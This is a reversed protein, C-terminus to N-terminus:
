SNELVWESYTWANRSRIPIQFHQYKSSLSFGSYGSFFRESCLLSGAVFEVWMHRRTWSNFGPWMPPLHAGEGSRLGQEGLQPGFHHSFTPLCIMSIILKNKKCLCDLLTSSTSFAVGSTALILCSSVFNFNLNQNSRNNSKNITNNSIKNRFSCWLEEDLQNKDNTEELNM